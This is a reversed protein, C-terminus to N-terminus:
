LDFLSLVPNLVVDLASAPRPINGGLTVLFLVTPVAYVAMPSRTIEGIAFATGACFFLGPGLFLLVALLYSSLHFPGQVLDTGFFAAGEYWGLAMLLHLGAACALAFLVGTFKGALYEAPSLPTSHLLDGIKAEDDHPVSMGALISVLFPYFILGSLAFVQALAFHSNSFPRVGGIAQDGTPIMAAPNIMLTAFAAFLVLGWLLPSKLHVRAEHRALTSVRRWAGPSM